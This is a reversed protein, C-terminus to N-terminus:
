LYILLNDLDPIYLFPLTKFNLMFLTVLSVLNINVGLLQLGTEGFLGLTSNPMELEPFGTFFGHAKVTIYNLNKKKKIGQQVM